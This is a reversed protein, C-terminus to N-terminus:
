ENTNELKEYQVCKKLCMIGAAVSFSNPVCTNDVELYCFYTAFCLGGMTSWPMRVELWREDYSVTSETVM